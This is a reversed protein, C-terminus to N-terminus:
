DKLGAEMVNGEKPSDEALQGVTEPTGALTLEVGVEERAETLRHIEVM